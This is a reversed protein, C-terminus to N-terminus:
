REENENGGYMDHLEEYATQLIDHEDDFIGLKHIAYLLEKIIAILDAKSLEYGHNSIWDFAKGEALAVLFENM